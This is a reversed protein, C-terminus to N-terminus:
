QTGGSVAEKPLLNDELMQKLRAAKPTLKRNGKVVFVQWMMEFAQTLEERLLVRNEAYVHLSYQPDDIVLLDGAANLEPTLVLPSRFYLFTENSFFGELTMPALGVDYCIEVSPVNLPSFIYEYTKRMVEVGGLILPLVNPLVSGQNFNRMAYVDGM